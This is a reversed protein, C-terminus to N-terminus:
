QEYEQSNCPGAFRRRLGTWQEIFGLAAVVLFAPWGFLVLVLYFVVLM